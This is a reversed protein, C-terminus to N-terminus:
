SIIDVVGDFEPSVIQIFADIALAAFFLLILGIFLYILMQILRGKRTGQGANEWIEDIDEFDDPNYGGPKETLRKSETSEAGDILSDAKEYDDESYRDERTM